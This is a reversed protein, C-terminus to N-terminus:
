GGYKDDKLLELADKLLQIPITTNCIGKGNPRYPCVVCGASDWDDPYEYLHICETLGNIVKEPNAM